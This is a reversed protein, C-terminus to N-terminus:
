CCEPFDPRGEGQLSAPSVFGLSLHNLSTSCLGFLMTRLCGNWGLALRIQEAQERCALLSIFNIHLLLQAASAPCCREFWLVVSLMTGPVALVAWIFRHQWLLGFVVRLPSGLEESCSYVDPADSAEDALDRCSLVLTSGGLGNTQFPEALM